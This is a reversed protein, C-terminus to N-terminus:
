CSKCEFSKLDKEKVNTKMDTIIDDTIRKTEEVRIRISELEKNLQKQFDFFVVNEVYKSYDFQSSKIQTSEHSDGYKLNSM